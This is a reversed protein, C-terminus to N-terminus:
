RADFLDGFDKAAQKVREIDARSWAPLRRFRIRSGRMVTGFEDKQYGITWYFVAGIDVLDLDADPVDDLSFTVQEEPFTPTTLDRTRALFENDRTVHIVTGEWQQLPTFVSQRPRPTPVRIMARPVTLATVQDPLPEDGSRRPTEAATSGNAFVYGDSRRPRPNLVPASPTLSSDISQPREIASGPDNQVAAFVSRPSM